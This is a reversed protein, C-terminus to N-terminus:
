MDIILTFHPATHALLSSQGSPGVLIAVSERPCNEHTSLMEIELLYERNKKDMGMRFYLLFEERHM